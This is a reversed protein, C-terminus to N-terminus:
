GLTMPTRQEAWTCFLSTLVTDSSAVNQSRKVTVLFAYQAFLDHPESGKIERNENYGWPTAGFANLLDKSVLPSLVATSLARHLFLINQEKNKHEGYNYKELLIM